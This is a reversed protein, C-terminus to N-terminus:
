NLTASISATGLSAPATLIANYSGNGLDTVAGVTGLTSAVAVTAGGSTLANGQADLLKVTITTQSTGNAPLTLNAVTVLSRDNSPAGPVFEVEPSLPLSVSNVKASISARGTTTPATLVATYSGNGHDTVAALTGMTTAIAVNDGGSTIPHGQADKLKVTVATGATGDAALIADGVELSSNAASPSGAVFQVSTNAALAAGNVKASVTANGLTTPATLTAWYVGNGQYAVTGISGLTTSMEVTSGDSTVSHGQADKLRVTITSQSAGDGPMLTRSSTLESHAASPDGPVFQVSTTSTLATGNLTAGITATGLTTPATLMATYTGDGNDTVPGVTGLTSSIAVTEGGAPWDAGQANKLKVAISAQSTGDATLRAVSRSIESQKASVTEDRIMYTQFVFDAIDASFSDTGSKHGPYPNSTGTSWGIGSTGGGITHVRMRYTMNKDLYIGGPIPVDVWGIAGSTIPLEGLGIVASLDNAKYIEVILGEPNGYAGAVHIRVGSLQGAIKATFEQHKASERNAWINGGTSVHQNVDLEAASAYTGEVPFSWGLLATVLMVALWKKM